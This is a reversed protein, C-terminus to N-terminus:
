FKMHRRKPVSQGMRMPPTFLFFLRSSITPTNIRSFTQSYFLRLLMGFVTSTQFWSVVQVVKCNIQNPVEAYM